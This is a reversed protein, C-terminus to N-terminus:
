RRGEKLIWAAYNLINLRGKAEVPAGKAIDAKIKEEDAYESGQSKLLKALEAITLSSPSAKKKRKL